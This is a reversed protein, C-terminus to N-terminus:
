RTPIVPLVMRSCYKSDRYIKHRNQPPFTLVLAQLEKSFPSFALLAPFREKSDPRYIDAAIRIGDRMPIFLDKEIKMKHIPKSNEITRKSRVM